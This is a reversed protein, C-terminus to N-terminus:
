LAYSGHGRQQEDVARGVEVAGEVRQGVQTGRAALRGARDATHQRHQANEFGVILCIKAGHYEVGLALGEAVVPVRIVLRLTRRHRVIQHRLDFGQVFADAGGAPRQQHFGADLGVVHDARQGALGAIGADIAHNGGAVLVQRLQHVLVDRQHVGHVALVSSM